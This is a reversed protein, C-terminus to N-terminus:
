VVRNRMEGQQFARVNRALEDIANQRAETTAWAIHPTIILNSGRYDLLPNGDCPPEKSLVDIAAAAIDGNRLAEVLAASDVLGGRATNVLIATSKMSRFETSGFLKRTADNLPCHLSIIDAEHLLEAFDTRGDADQAAAGRRRAVLVRMGFLRAMDGVARGLVGHGVIGLTMASLQRIPHGLMCFDAARQWEGARVATDFPGISHTLNLLVGFVHEVVSQTCYDRINCVAVGHDAAAALDINDTGTATLGIFRLATAAAILDRDLRVKNTLVYEANCVREFREGGATSDFFRIGPLADSLPSRDIGDAGMTAFDLFVANM